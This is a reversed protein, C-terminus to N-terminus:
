GDWIIKRKKEDMRSLNFMKKDMKPPARSKEDM